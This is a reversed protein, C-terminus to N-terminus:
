PISRLTVRERAGNILGEISASTLKRKSIRHRKPLSRSRPATSGPHQRVLADVLQDPSLPNIKRPTELPIFGRVLRFNWRLTRDRRSDRNSPRLPWGTSRALALNGSWFICQTWLLRSTAPAVTSSQGKPRVRMTCSWCRQGFNTLRRLKKMFVRMETSSQEDGTNFAVLSDIIILRGRKPCLVSGAWRRPQTTTWFELQGWIKLHDTPEVGLELLNRYTIGRSRGGRLQCNKESQIWRPDGQDHSCRPAQHLTRSPIPSTAQPGAELQVGISSSHASPGTFLWAKPLVWVPVAEFFEGSLITMCIRRGNAPGIWRCWGRADSDRDGTCASQKRAAPIQPPSAASWCWPSRATESREDPGLGAEARSAPNEREWPAAHWAEALLGNRRARGSLM